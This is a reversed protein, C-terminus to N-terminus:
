NGILSHLSELIEVSQVCVVDWAYNRLVTSPKVKGTGWVMEQILNWLLVGWAAIMVANFMILYLRSWKSQSPRKSRTPPAM